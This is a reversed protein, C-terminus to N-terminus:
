KDSSKLVKFFNHTWSKYKWDNCKACLPIDDFRSELVLKRWAEFKEGRWVEEITSDNINGMYYGEEVDFNCFTINGNSLSVMREFPYPCPVRQDPPLYTEESYLEENLQGYTLYKRVIVNDVRKRWFDEVVSSEIEKQNDVISVLIKTATGSKDRHNVMYDINKLINDFKLGRRIQEYTEKDSADVSCEIAEIGADILRKSRKPTLLSGNTIVAVRVNKKGCAYEIIDTLNPMLFPEGTGTIRILPKQKNYEAVEDVIKCLLKSSMYTVNDRKRLNPNANFWCHVCRSNCANSVSPLIMLPFTDAGEKLGFKEPLHKNYEKIM